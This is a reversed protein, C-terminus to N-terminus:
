TNNELGGTVEGRKLGFIKRPVKNELVLLIKGKIM